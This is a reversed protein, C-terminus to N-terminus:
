QILEMFVLCFLKKEIQSMLLNCINIFILILYEEMKRTNKKYKKMLIFKIVFLVILRKGDLDQLGYTVDFSFEINKRPAVSAPTACGALLCLGIIFLVQPIKMDHIANLKDLAFTIM